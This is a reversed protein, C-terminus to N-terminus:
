MTSATAAPITTKSNGDNNSSNNNNDDIDNKHNNTFGVGLRRNASAVCLVRYQNRGIGLGIDPISVASAGVHLQLTTTFGTERWVLRMVVTATPRPVPACHIESDTGTPAPRCRVTLTISPPGKPLSTPLQLQLRDLVTLGVPSPRRKCNTAPKSIRMRRLCSHSAIPLPPEQKASTHAASLVPLLPAAVTIPVNAAHPQEYPLPNAVFPGYSSGYCTRRVSGTLPSGVGGPYALVRYAAPGTAASGPARTQSRTPGLLSSPTCAEGRDACPRQAHRAM